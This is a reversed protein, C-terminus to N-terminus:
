KLVSLSELSVPMSVRRCHRAALFIARIWKSSGASTRKSPISLPTLEHGYLAMKSELRLTNRAGLGCPKIGFPRGAELLEHWLRPAEAPSIYIEFGDEGTYGTRAIRAPVGSVEGDVFWYYKIESLRAPTFQQLIELARPGQV